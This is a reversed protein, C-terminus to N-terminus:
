KREKEIFNVTTGTVNEGVEKTSKNILFNNMGKM